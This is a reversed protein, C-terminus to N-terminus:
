SEVLVLFCVAVALLVVASGLCWRREGESRASIYFGTAVGLGGLLASAGLGGLEAWSYDSNEMALSLYIMLAGGVGFVTWFLKDMATPKM